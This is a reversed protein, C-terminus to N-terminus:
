GVVTHLATKRREDKRREVVVPIQTNSTSSAVLSQLICASACPQPRTILNKERTEVSVPTYMLCLAYGYHREVLTASLVPVILVTVTCGDVCCVPRHPRKKCYWICFSPWADRIVRLRWIVPDIPLLEVVV